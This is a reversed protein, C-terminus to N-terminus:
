QGRSLRRSALGAALTTSAVFVLYGTILLGTMVALLVYLDPNGAAPDSLRRHAISVFAHPQTLPDWSNFRLVRGLYIGASSLSFVAIATTWGALDGYRETVLSQILYLSSYGILLGTGGFAAVMLLDFWIPVAEWTRGVHIIDTALYPANPLFLLWLASLSVVAAAPLSARHAAHAALAFLMPLWALALNWALFSWEPSGTYQM